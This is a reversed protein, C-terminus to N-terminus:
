SFTMLFDWSFHLTWQGARTALVSGNRISSTDLGLLLSVEKGEPVLGVM